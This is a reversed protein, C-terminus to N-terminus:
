FPTADAAPVPREKPWLKVNDIQARTQGQYTGHTVVLMAWRGIAQKRTFKAVNGVMPLDLGRVVQALKWASSTTLATYNRLTKGMFQGEGITFEWVFQDNGAGSTDKFLDTLKAPYVGVPIPAETTLDAEFNEDDESGPAAGDVVSALPDGSQGALPDFSGVDQTTIVDEDPVM